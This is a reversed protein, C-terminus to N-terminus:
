GARALLFRGISSRGVRIGRRGLEEHLEDLTMDPRAAVLERVLGEHDRLEREGCSGHRRRCSLGGAVAAVIRRRLDESYARGMGAPRRGTALKCTTDWSTTYSPPALRERLAGMRLATALSRSATTM